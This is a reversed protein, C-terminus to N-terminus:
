RGAKQSFDIGAKELLPLLDDLEDPLAREIGKPMNNALVKCAPVAIDGRDKLVRGIVKWGRYYRDMRAKESRSSDLAAAAVSDLTAMIQDQRVPLPVGKPDALYEEPDRLDLDTFWRTFELAAAEGVCGMTLLRAVSSKKGYGCAGAATLLLAVRSWMRPSPWAGGQLKAGKPLQLLLEPRRKIFASLVGRDAAANDRWNAPLRAIEPRPWGSVMGECWEAPPMPWDIHTWRNAIAATLDYGGTVMSAPNGAAVHSTETPLRMDGAMGGHVVRLASSQTNPPATNFEDWLVIGKGAKKLEFAWLPPHMSVGDPRIIPLGGQDSPERLSLIVTWIPEDLAPAIEELVATKGVGPAGWLFVPTRAQICIQAALMHDNNAM